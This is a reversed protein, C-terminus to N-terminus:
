RVQRQPGREDGAKGALRVVVELLQDLEDLLVPELPHAHEGIRELGVRRRRLQGIM